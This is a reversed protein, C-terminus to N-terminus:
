PFVYTVPATPGRIVSAYTLFAGGPTFTQVVAWGGEVAGANVRAFVDNVQLFARPPLTGAIRGLRRSGSDHIEIRIRIEKAALNLLGISTRVAAERSPSHYLGELKARTGSRIAQDETLAPLLPGDRAGHAVNATFSSAAIPGALPVLRLAGAGSFAFLEEAANRWTRRQDPNLGVTRWAAPANETSGLLLEVEVRNAVPTLNSVELRTQWKAGARGSSNAIPLVYLARPSAAALASGSVATGSPGGGFGLTAALAPRGRLALLLSRGELAENVEWQVMSLGSLAYLIAVSRLPWRRWPSSQKESILVALFPVAILTRGYSWAEGYVYYSLFLGTVAFALFALELDTWTSPRAAVIIMAVLTAAIALLGFLEPWWVHSGHFIEGLKKPVWAFPVSLNRGGTDFAAGTISKLYLQWGLVLGLPITTFLAADALRRRRLEEIAIALVALYSTERALVAASALVLTLTNRGRAHFWLAGLMFCLAGADPTCRIMTAALGASAALLLAWWASHRETELWRATLLIAALGLGWCLFQYMVIAAGPNGFAVFWAALPVMIRTARYSPWDLVTQTALNHLLPDTALAAYMYGDYGTGARPVSAFAPPLVTRDGICLLARVDSGYRARALFLVLVVWLLTAVLGVLRASSRRSPVSGARPPRVSEVANLSPVGTQLVVV